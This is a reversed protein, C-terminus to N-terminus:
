ISETEWISCNQHTLSIPVDVVQSFLAEFFCRPFGQHNSVIIPYDATSVFLLTLHCTTPPEKVVQAQVVVTAVTALWVYCQPLFRLYMMVSLPLAYDNLAVPSKKAVYVENVRSVGGLLQQLPCSKPPMWRGLQWDWRRAFLLFIRYNEVIEIKPQMMVHQLQVYHDHQCILANPM